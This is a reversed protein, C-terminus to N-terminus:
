ALSQKGTSSEESSFSMSRAFSPSSRQAPPLGGGSYSAQSRKTRGLATLINPIDMSSVRSTSKILLEPDPLSVPPFRELLELETAHVSSRQTAATDSSLIEHTFSLTM